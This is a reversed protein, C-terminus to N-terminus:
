NCRSKCLSRGLEVATLCVVKGLGNPIKVCLARAIIAADDCRQECATVNEVSMPQISTTFLQIPATPDFVPINPDGVVQDGEQILESEKLIAHIEKKEDESLEEWQGANIKIEAM